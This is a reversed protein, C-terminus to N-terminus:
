KDIDQPGKVTEPVWQRILEAVMSFEFMNNM